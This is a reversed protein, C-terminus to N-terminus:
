LVESQLVVLCSQSFRLRLITHAVGSVGGSSGSVSSRGTVFKVEGVSIGMRRGEEFAILM